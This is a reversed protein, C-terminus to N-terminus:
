KSFIYYGKEMKITSQSVMDLFLYLFVKSLLLGKGNKNHIAVQIREARGHDNEPLLGKGNKNHIAVERNAAPIAAFQSQHLLGKGNKNHIAVKRADVVKQFLEDYYGKEMKITSQSKNGDLFIVAKDTQLLGKGNKNHIAVLM